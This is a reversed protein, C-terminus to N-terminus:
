VRVFPSIDFLKNNHNDHNDLKKKKQPQLTYTENNIFDLNKFKIGTICRFNKIIIFKERKGSSISNTNLEYRLFEGCIFKQM